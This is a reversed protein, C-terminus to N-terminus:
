LRWGVYVALGLRQWASATFGVHHVSYSRRLLCLLVSMIGLSQSICAKPYPSIFFTFPLKAEFVKCFFLRFETNILAGHTRLFKLATAHSEHTCVVILHCAPPVLEWCNTHQGSNQMYQIFFLTTHFKHIRFLAQSFRISLFTHQRKHLKLKFSFFHPQTLGSLATAVLCPNTTEIQHSVV